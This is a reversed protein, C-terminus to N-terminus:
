CESIGFDSPFATCLLDLRDISLHNQGCFTSSIERCRTCRLFFGSSLLVHCLEGSSDLSYKVPELGIDSDGTM